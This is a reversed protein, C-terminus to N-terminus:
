SFRGWSLNTTTTVSTSSTPLDSLFGISAAVVPSLISVLQSVSSGIISPMSSGAVWVGLAYRTGAVLNYSSPYSGATNFSRTYLTGGATFLTTDSATRAVLTIAGTAPNDVTYLGMRAGTLGSGGGSTAMSIQSVTVSQTATFYVFQARGTSYTQGQSSNTRQAVDFGTSVQHLFGNLTALNAKLDLDTVLDTVKSQPLEPIDNVGFADSDDDTDLWLIDTNIPADPQAVIGESGTPGTPGPTLSIDLIEQDVYDKTALEYYTMPGPPTTNPIFIKDRNIVGFRARVGGYLGYQAEGSTVNGIPDVTLSHLEYPAAPSKSGDSGNSVVRYLGNWGPNDKILVTAGIAVGVDDVVLFGNSTAIVTVLGFSATFTANLAETTAVYASQIDKLDFLTSPIVRSIWTETDADYVLSAGDNASANINDLDNISSATTLVDNGNVTASDGEVILGNKIKFDKNSTALINV